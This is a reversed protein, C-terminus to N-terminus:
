ASAWSKVAATSQTLRNCCRWSSDVRAVSVASLDTMELPDGLGQGDGDSGALRIRACRVLDNYSTGVVQVSGNVIAVNYAESHTKGALTGLDKLGGADTWMFAHM